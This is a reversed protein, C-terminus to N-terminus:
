ETDGPFTKLIRDIGAEALQAATLWTGYGKIFTKVDLINEMLSSQTKDFVGKWVVEGSKVRLLYFGFAVSAPQEVAYQYGRRDRYRYIYGALVGDVGLEEGVKRMIEGPGAKFSEACASMYIGKVQDPTVLTIKQRMALKKVVAKEIIEEPSGSYAASSSFYTGSVPCRVYNVSPDEPIINQFPIVAITRIGPNEDTLVATSSPPASSCGAMFAILICGCFVIVYKFGLCLNKRSVM